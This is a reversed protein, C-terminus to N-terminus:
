STLLVRSFKGVEDTNGILLDPRYIAIQERMRGGQAETFHTMWDDDTYNMFNQVPADDNQNCANHPEGVTPKGYNPDSHAVTDGIHDGIGNCGGQFTHYLGLWHGIEHTGTRGLNYPAANGGPLTGHLLVVGDRVRDGALEDPFTAWGLLGSGIPFGATYFNLNTEPAVQLAAKAQREAASRLDMHFWASNDIEKTALEDYKFQIQHSRFDDNLVKIQDARQAATVKGDDGDHIHVFQVNVTIIGSSRRFRANRRSASRFAQIAEDNRRIQYYGAHPTGCRAGTHVYEQQNNFTRGGFKFESM